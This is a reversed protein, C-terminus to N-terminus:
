NDIGLLHAGLFTLVAEKYLKDGVANMHNRKALTVGTAGPIAALLPVIEGAVDDKEGVVVLVPIKITALMEATIKVRSSRICAALAKLDGRTQEAFVRFTRASVDTVDLLSAAELAKAIERGGGVGTIMRSALGAFVASGVRTPHAIAMFAAIRAGMSYGMVHARPIKLHDLLRRADEAMEAASYLDPNYLKESDGHGRNDMTIVRFGGDLLTNVWGTDVWNVRGNSAFGHILLVPEGQGVDDFAIEVSDSNFKHM